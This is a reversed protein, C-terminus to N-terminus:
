LQAIRLLTEAMLQRSIKQLWPIPKAEAVGSGSRGPSTFFTEQATIATLPGRSNMAPLAGTPTHAPIGRSRGRILSRPLETQIV